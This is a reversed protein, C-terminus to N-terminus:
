YDKLQKFVKFEHDYPEVNEEFALAVPRVFCVDALFWQYLQLMNCLM